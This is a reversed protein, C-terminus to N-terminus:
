NLRELFCEFVELDISIRLIIMNIYFNVMVVMFSYFGLSFIKFGLLIFLIIM